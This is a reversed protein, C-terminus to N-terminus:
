EAREVNSALVELYVVWRRSRTCSLPHGRRLTEAERRGSILDKRSAYITYSLDQRALKRAVANCPGNRDLNSM